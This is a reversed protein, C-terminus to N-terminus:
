YSVRWKYVTCCRYYLPVFVSIQLRLENYVKEYGYLFSITYTAKAYCIADDAHPCMFPPAKQLPTRTDIVDEDNRLPKPPTEPLQGSKGYLAASRQAM